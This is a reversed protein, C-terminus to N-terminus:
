VLNDMNLILTIPANNGEQRWRLARNHHKQASAPLPAWGDVLHLAEVVYGTDSRLAM